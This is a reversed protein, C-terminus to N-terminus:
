RLEKQMRVAVPKFGFKKLNNISPKNKLFAGSDAYKVGKKRLWKLRENTLRKGIGKKRYEKKVYLYTLNGTDGKVEANAFALIKNKEEAVIWLNKRSKLEKKWGNLRERKHKNLDRIISLRTKKPNQLRVEDLVGELYIEDIERLDGEKAKKIKM